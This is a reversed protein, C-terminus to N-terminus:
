LVCRMLKFEVDEKKQSAMRDSNEKILFRISFRQKGASIEPYFHENKPIMIRLLQNAQQSDLNEQYFGSAAIVKSSHGSDRVIKLIIEISETLSLYPLSWRTIDQIRQKPTLSLWHHLEPLDFGCTGGPISSRQKLASLFDIAKIHEGMKGSIAHVEQTALYLKSLVQELASKNVGKHTTLVKLLTQQRELEKLTEQKIDTREVLATIELIVLLANYSCFENTQKSFFKLRSVLTELRLFIRVRENLPQEFVQFSAM